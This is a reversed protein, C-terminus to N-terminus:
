FAENQTRAPTPSVARGDGTIWSSDKQRETVRGPTHPSEGIDPDLVSYLTTPSCTGPLLGPTPQGPSGSTRALSAGM